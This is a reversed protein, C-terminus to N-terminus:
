QKTVGLSEPWFPWTTSISSVPTTRTCPWWWVWPPVSCLSIVMLCTRSWDVSWCCSGPRRWHVPCATFLWNWKVVLLRLWSLLVRSLVMSCTVIIIQLSPHALHNDSLGTRYYILHGSCSQFSHTFFKCLTLSERFFDACSAPFTSPPWSTSPWSSVHGLLRSSM